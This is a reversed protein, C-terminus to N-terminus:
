GPLHNEPSIILSVLTRKETLITESKHLIIKCLNLVLLSEILKINEM